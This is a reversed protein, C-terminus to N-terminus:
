FDVKLKFTFDRETNKKIPTALKAIAILNKANDYIGIKGIYTENKFREEFDFYSSSVTNFIQIDEQEKYVYSATWPPKSVYSAHDIFTPNSSFNLDSKSARAHMTLTQIYKRGEFNLL